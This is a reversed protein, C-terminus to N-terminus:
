TSRPLLPDLEQRYDGGTYTSVPPGGQPKVKRYSLLNGLNPQRHYAVTMRGFRYRKPRGRVRDDLQNIHPQHLPNMFATQWTQQILASPPDWPNYSVHCFIRDEDLDATSEPPAPLLGLKQQAKEIGRVFLPELTSHEWGRVRLRHFFLRLKQEVDSQKSCLMYTRYINGFILGSIVGPPHASRPPLYQYINLAKEFLTTVIKDDEIRITLDMFDVTSALPTFTWELGHYQNMRHRLSNWRHRDRLHNGTSRFIGIVDDIFRRYFLLIDAFEDLITGDEFIGFFITAYPPAPPAGMATGVLQKWFTDGFQFTNNNMILRLASIIAAVNLHSWKSYLYEEIADCAPGTQINTYMSTADASFLLSGPPLDLSEMEKKLDVSSKFYSRMSAAIPQFQVDLWKGLPELSSGSTSVIPRTKPANKHIKITLYFAPLSIEDPKKRTRRLYKRESPPLSKGYTTIWEDLESEILASASSAETDSLHLYTTADSLHDRFAFKIYRDRDIVCPGLNKDCMAVIYEPHDKFFQLGLRQTRTLNPSPPKSMTHSRFAARLNCRLIFRRTAITESVLHPQWHSRTFLKPNFPDDPDDTIPKDGFWARVNIDRELRSFTEAELREIPTPGDPM